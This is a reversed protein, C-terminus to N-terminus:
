KNHPMFLPHAEFAYIDQSFLKQRQKKKNFLSRNKIRQLRADTGKMVSFSSADFMKHDCHVRGLKHM